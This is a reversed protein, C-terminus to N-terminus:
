LHLKRVFRQAAKPAPRKGSETFEYGLFVFGESLNCIRTKDKNFRLQLEDIIGKAAKLGDEAKERTDSLIVFDDAFRVLRYKADIMKKDFEHLYINSFLPSTVAGQCIGMGDSSAGTELLNNILSIIRNDRLTAALLNILIAHNVTDFFSNIDADVVWCCGQKIYKEVKDLAQHASRRPRYAYSCDLFESEFIPELSNVMAQQVVRDRIAPIGLIRKGGSPKDAEFRVLPLFEYDGKELLSEIVRLNDYLNLEFDEITVRDIGGAGMNGAVKLWASYLNDESTLKQWLTLDTM